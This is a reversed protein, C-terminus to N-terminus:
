LTLSNDNSKLNSKDSKVSKHDTQKSQYWSSFTLDPRKDGYLHLLVLKQDTNLKSNLVKDTLNTTIPIKDNITYKGGMLNKGTDMKQSTKHSLLNTMELLYILDITPNSSSELNAILSDIAQEEYSLIQAVPQSYRQNLEKDM